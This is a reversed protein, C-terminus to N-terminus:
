RTASRLSLTAQVDVGGQADLVVGYDRRADEATILGDRVDDAVRQADRRHPDGFGGGGPLQLRIADRPPVTQRGKPKIPRGSRLSVAGSAGALGGDRGRAPHHVREFNCLLAIPASGAGGLEIVQGLGGRFEGAGGSRERFERRYFVIPAISETAEVPITRVGSPFATASLGDKGPRAGAGGCHFIVSSFETLANAEAGAEVEDVLSGGGFIQPNWLSSAGEAPVGNPMVQHLCGFVVDPLMHGVTHRAAVPWPRKVNLVCGEPASVTIPGLSGANNPVDPAVLCKVGFATYALCYNYVVNIGYCSAPSTGDFDVHIGTESITM